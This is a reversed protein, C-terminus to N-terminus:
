RRFNARLEAPSTVRLLTCMGFYAVIGASVMIALAAARGIIPGASWDALLRSLGFVLAGMLLSAVLMRPIRALVGRDITFSRRLGLWLLAVNVWAAVATAIAIGMHRLSPFLALSVAINVLVTIGAMIMPSRTDERAFYGPQLVKILVYGPLGLAFAALAWGTKSADDVTFEGRQFVALILEQNIVELPSTDTAKIEVRLM